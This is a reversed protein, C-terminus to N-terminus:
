SPRLASRVGALCLFAGMALCFLVLGLAEDFPLLSGAAAANSAATAAAGGPAHAFPVLLPLPTGPRWGARSLFAGAEVARAVGFYVLFGGLTLAALAGRVDLVAVARRDGDGAAIAAATAEGQPLTGAATM